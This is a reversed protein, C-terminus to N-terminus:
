LASHPFISTVHDILRPRQLALSDNWTARVSEGCEKVFEGLELRRSLSLPIQAPFSQGLEVTQGFRSSHADQARLATKGSCQPQQDYDTGADVQGDGPEDFEVPEGDM